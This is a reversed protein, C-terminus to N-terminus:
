PYRVLVTATAKIKGATVAIDPLKTLTSTYTKSYSVTGMDTNESIKTSGSIMPDWGARRMDQLTSFGPCYSYAGIGGTGTARTGGTTPTVCQLNNWGAFYVDNNEGNKLSIGVGKAMHDAAYDDSILYKVSGYEADVLNLEQAQTYSQLSAQLAVAVSNPTATTGISSDCSLIVSFNQSATEEANLQSVTMVPFHVYPTVTTLVCSPAYSFTAAPSGNLGIPIAHEWNSYGTGTNSDAGLNINYGSGQLNIYGNPQNCGRLVSNYAVGGASWVQDPNAGPAIGIHKENGGLPHCYHHTSVNINNADTTGGYAEKWKVLTAVVKPIDRKKVTFGGGTGNDHTVVPVSSQQWFRSFVEGTDAMTLKIAVYPFETAYYGPNDPIEYFGGIISDGNTAYAWSLTDKDSAQTCIVIDTDDSTALRGNLITSYNSVGTALTTGIPQLNTNIINIRGIGLSATMNDGGTYNSGSISPSSCSAYLHSSCLSLMGITIASSLLKKNPTM